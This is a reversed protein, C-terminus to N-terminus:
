TKCLVNTFTVRRSKHARYMPELNTKCRIKGITSRQVEFQKSQWKEKVPRDYVSQNKNVGFTTRYGESLTSTIGM